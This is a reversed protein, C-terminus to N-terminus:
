ADTTEVRICALNPNNQSFPENWLSIFRVYCHSLPWVQFVFIALMYIEDSWHWEGKMAINLYTNHKQKLISVYLMGFM